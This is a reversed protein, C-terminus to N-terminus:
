GDDRMYLIRKLKPAVEYPGQFDISYNGHRVHIKMAAYKFQCPCLFLGAFLILCSVSVSVSLVCIHVHVRVRVHIPIAIPSSPM